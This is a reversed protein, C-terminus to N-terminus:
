VGGQWLQPGSGNILSTNPEYAIKSVVAGACKNTAVSVTGGYSTAAPRPL